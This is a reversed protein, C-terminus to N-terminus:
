RSTATSDLSGFEAHGEPARDSASEASAAEVPAAEGTTNSPYELSLEILMPRDRTATFGACDSMMAGNRYVAGSRFIAVTLTRKSHAGQYLKQSAASDALRLKALTFGEQAAIQMVRDPLIVSRPAAFVAKYWPSPNDPGHGSDGQDCALTAGSARLADAMPRFGTEAINEHFLGASRAASFASGGLAVLVVVGVATIFLRRRHRLPM